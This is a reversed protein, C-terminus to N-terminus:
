QIATHNLLFRPFLLLQACDYAIMFVNHVVLLSYSGPFSVSCFCKCFPSMRPLGLKAEPMHTHTLRTHTHTDHQLLIIYCIFSTICQRPVDAASPLLGVGSEGSSRLRASRLSKHSWPRDWEAWSLEAWSLSPQRDKLWPNKKGREQLLPNFYKIWQIEQCHDGLDGCNIHRRQNSHDLSMMFTILYSTQDGFQNLRQHLFFWPLSIIILFFQFNLDM